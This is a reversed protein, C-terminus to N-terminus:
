EIIFSLSLRQLYFINNINNNNIYFISYKLNILFFM